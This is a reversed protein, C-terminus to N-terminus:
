SGTEPSSEMVEAVKSRNLFWFGAGAASICLLAFRFAFAVIVGTGFGFTEYLLKMAFEMGGVGGPLPIANAVMSIPEIMFHNAVTPYVETLGRAMSYISIVFCANVGVSMLFCVLVAVPKSRYTMVVETLRETIPGTKPIAYLRQYLKTKVIQPALFLTIMGLFGASTAGLVVKCVFNLTAFKGPHESAIASTDILLFAISAFSFMTMLGIVRDAVVSCIAEPARDRVQRTVYFARLTDGGIVGFAFLSFFTSIFGIRIADFLTFPLDLARVLVRWRFFSFMHALFCSLFGLGVWGWRKERSMFGDFLEPDEARASYFLYVLIGISLAFKVGTIL